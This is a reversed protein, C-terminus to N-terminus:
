GWGQAVSQAASKYRGHAKFIGALYLTLLSILSEKKEEEEKSLLFRIMIENNSETRSTTRQFSAMQDEVQQQQLAQKSAQTAHAAFGDGERKRLDFWSLSFDFGFTSAFKAL